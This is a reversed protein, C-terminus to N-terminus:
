VQKNNTSSRSRSRADDSYEEEEEEEEEGEEGRGQSDRESVAQMRKLRRTFNSHPGHVETTDELLINSPMHERFVWKRNLDTRGFPELVGLVRHICRRDNRRYLLRLVRDAVFDIQEARGERENRSLWNLVGFLASYTLWQSAKSSIVTYHVVQEMNNLQAYALALQRACFSQSVDIPDEEFREIIAEIHRLQNKQLVKSLVLSIMFQDYEEMALFLAVAANNEEMELLSQMVIAVTHVSTERDGEFLRKALALADESRDARFLAQVLRALTYQDSCGGAWQVVRLADDIRGRFCLHAVLAGGVPNTVDVKGFSKAKEIDFKSQDLMMAASRRLLEPDIRLEISDNKKFTYREDLASYLQCVHLADTHRDVDCLHKTLEVASSTVTSLLKTLPKKCSHLKRIVAYAHDFEGVKVCNSFLNALEDSDLTDADFHPQLRIITYRAVLRPRSVPPINFGEMRLLLEEVPLRLVLMAELVAQCMESSPRLGGSMKSSLMLDFLEVVDQYRGAILLDDLLMALPFTEIEEAVRSWPEANLSADAPLPLERVLTMAVAIDVKRLDEMMILWVGRAAHTQRLHTLVAKAPDATASQLIERAKAVAHFASIRSIQSLQEATTPEYFKDRSKFKIKTPDRVPPIYTYPLRAVPEDSTSLQRIRAIGSSLLLRRRLLLLSMMSDVFSQQDICSIM